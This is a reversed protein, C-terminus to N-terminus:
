KNKKRKQKQKRKRPHLDTTEKIIQTSNNRISRIKILERRFLLQSM